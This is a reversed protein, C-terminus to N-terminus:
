RNQRIRPSIIPILFGMHRINPMPPDFKAKYVLYVVTMMPRENTIVALLLIALTDKYWTCSLRGPGKM